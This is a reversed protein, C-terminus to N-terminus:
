SQFSPVGAKRYILDLARTVKRSDHGTVSPTRGDRLATAFERINALHGTGGISLPDGAGGAPVAPATAAPAAEFPRQTKISVLEDGSFACSGETGCILVRQPLGDYAVTTGTITGIAGNKLRITVAAVTEAEIDREFGCKLEAHLVEDLDGGLWLLRDIMHPSQNALVGGDLAWTGRWDGSDYYSQTRYWPTEAHVFVIKGLLGQDIARRAAQPGPAFRQQFVGGLTVGAKECATIAADAKALHLDLPKECLVHKGAAAIQIVQDGHLGSPSCVTVVDVESSRLMDALSAYMTVGQTDGFAARRAADPEAAAVLKALGEAELKKLCDAHLKSIVGCGCIGFRIAAM